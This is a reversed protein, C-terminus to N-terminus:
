FNEEIAVHQLERGAVVKVVNVVGLDKDLAVDVVLLLIDVALEQLLLLLLLM